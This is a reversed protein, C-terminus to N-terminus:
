RFPAILARGIPLWVETNAFHEANLRILHVVLGVALIPYVKRCVFMDCAIAILLPALNLSQWVVVTELGTRGVLRGLGVVAISFTALLMARKHLDPRRRYIVATALFGAFYVMDIVPFFVFAAAAEFDNERQGLRNALLGAAYLGVAAIAFGYAALWPGMRQHVRAQGTMILMAQSIYLLLWVTFLAAHLHILWFRTTAEPTRGTVASFYQPWFGALALALMMLGLITFFPSKRLRRRVSKSPGVPAAATSM